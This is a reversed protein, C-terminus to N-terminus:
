PASRHESAVLGGRREHEDLRDADRMIRSDPPRRARPAGCQRVSVITTEYTSAAPFGAAVVTVGGGNRRRSICCARRARRPNPRREDDAFWRSRRRPRTRRRRVQPVHRDRTPSARSGPPPVATARRECHHSVASTSRGRRDAHEVGPDASEGDRVLHDALQRVLADHIEAVRRAHRVSRLAWVGHAAVAALDRREEGLSPTLLMTMAHLVAVACASSMSRPSSDVHRHDADDLGARSRRYGGRPRPCMPTMPVAPVILDPAYSRAMRASSGSTRTVARAQGSKTGSTSSPQVSWSAVRSM